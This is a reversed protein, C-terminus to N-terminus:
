SMGLQSTLWEQQSQMEALMTEMASFEAWYREEKDAMESIIEDIYNDFDNISERTEVLANTSMQTGFDRMISDMRVFLGSKATYGEVSADTKGEEDIELNTFMKQVAASDEKLAAMLEDADLEIQGQTTKWDEDWAKTDIGVDFASLGTDSVSFSLSSRLGTLLDGIMTDGKLIGSMAKDDWQKAEEESIASREENTLPEYDRYEDAYYLANLTSILENYSEVFDNIADVTPQFDQEVTAQIPAETADMDAKIEFDLGDIEFVNSDQTITRTEGNMEFTIEADEGTASTGAIGLLDFDGSIELTTQAGTDRSSIMFEDMMESYQFSANAETNNNIEYMMQDITTEDVDFSFSQGNVTVEFQGSAPIDNGLKQIAEALTDSREVNTVESYSGSEIGTVSDAGFIGGSVEITQVSSDNARISFSDSYEDYSMTVNAGSDNIEQMVQDISKDVGGESLQFTHSGITIESGIDAPDMGMATALDAFSKSTDVLSARTAEGAFLGTSTQNSLTIRSQNGVDTDVLNLKLGEATDEFSATVGGTASSRENIENVVDELTTASPNGEADTASFSFTEGNIAFSLTGESEDIDWGLAAAAEGITTASAVGKITDTWTAQQFGGSEGRTSVVDSNLQGSSLSATTARKASLVSFSMNLANETGSISVYPNEEMTVGYVNYASSSMVSMEGIVSLYDNRVDNVMEDIEEYAELRWEELQRDRFADDIMNQERYLMNEVLAETDM